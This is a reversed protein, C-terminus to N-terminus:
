QVAACAASMEELKARYYSIVAGSVSSAMPTISKGFHTTPCDVTVFEGTRHDRHIFQAFYATQVVPFIEIGLAQQVEGSPIERSSIKQALQDMTEVNFAKCLLRRHVESKTAGSRFGIGHLAAKEPDVVRWDFLFGGFDWKLITSHVDANRAKWVYKLCPDNTRDAALEKKWRDLGLMKACDRLAEHLSSILTLVTFLARECDDVEGKEGFVVMEAHSKELWRLMRESKSLYELARTQPDM